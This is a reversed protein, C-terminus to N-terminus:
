ACRATVAHAHMDLDVGLAVRGLQMPDRHGLGIQAIDREVGLPLRPGLTRRHPLASGRCDKAAGVQGAATLGSLRNRRNQQAQQLQRHAEVGRWRMWRYRLLPWMRGNASTSNGAALALLQRAAAQVDTWYDTVLVAQLREPPAWDRMAPRHSHHLIGGNRAILAECLNATIGPRVAALTALLRSREDSTARCQPQMTLPLGAANKGVAPSARLIRRM